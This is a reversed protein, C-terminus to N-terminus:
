ITIIRKQKRKDPQKMDAVSYTFPAVVGDADVEVLQNNIRLFLSM